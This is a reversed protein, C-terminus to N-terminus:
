GRALARTAPRRCRRCPPARSAASTAVTSVTSRSSSILSSAPQGGLCLFVSEGGDLLRTTFAWAHRRRRRRCARRSSSGGRARRTGPTGRARCRGAARAGAGARPCPRRCTHPPRRRRLRRVSARRRTARASPAGSRRAAGSTSGKSPACSTIAASRPAAGSRARSSPSRLRVEIGEDVVLRRAPARSPQVLLVVDLADFGSGSRTAAASSFAPVSRATITPAVGHSQSAARRAPTAVTQTDGATERLGLQALRAGDRDEVREPREELSEVLCREGWFTVVPRAARAIASSRRSSTRRRSPRSRLRSGHARSSTPLPGPPGIRTLCTVPNPTPNAHQRQNEVRDIIVCATTNLVTMTM